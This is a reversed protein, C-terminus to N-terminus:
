DEDEGLEDLWSTDEGDNNDEEDSDDDTEFPPEDNDPEDEDDRTMFELILDEESYKQEFKQVVPSKSGEEGVMKIMPKQLVMRRERGTNESCKALAEDLTYAGLEILDRIDEPLDEETMTVLAGGEIFVGEFTIETVGKKVKLVKDVLKQTKTKDTIDIEFEFVKTLPIVQKVEKNKWMKTYELITGNVPLTGKDKDPKGISDKKLLMTQTFKTYYKSADEAGSLFISKIEKRVQVKGQYDSYKLDGKVNVVTGDTLNEKLYAIADYESLFRQAFTKGSKDKEIGITLFRMDGITELISEDHRDEFDITFKNEFDDSGDEKKGWVYLVNDREAGYGGMMEAYVTGCKPGCDVGLNFSNYIWDSKEAKEDIKYTYDNTKAEGVLIFKSQWNKKELKKKQNKAM